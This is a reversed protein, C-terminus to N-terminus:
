LSKAKTEMQVLAMQAQTSKHIEGTRINEPWRKGEASLDNALKYTLPWGECQGPEGRKYLTIPWFLFFKVILKFFIICVDYVAAGTCCWEAATSADM